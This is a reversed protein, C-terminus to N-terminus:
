NIIASTQNLGDCGILQHAWESVDDSIAWAFKGGVVDSM